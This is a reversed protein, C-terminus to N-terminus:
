WKIIGRVGSALSESVLEIANLTRRIFRKGNRMRNKIVQKKVNDIDLKNQLEQSITKQNTLQGEAVMQAVSQIAAQANSDNLNIQSQMLDGQFEAIVNTLHAEARKATASALANETNADTLANNKKEKVVLDNWQAKQLDMTQRVQDRLSEYYDRQADSLSKDALKKGIEVDLNVLELANRQRQVDANAASIAGDASVKKAQENKLQNDYFANLAAGVFSTDFNIPNVHADMRPAVNYSPASSNANASQLSSAPTAQGFMSAPNIGAAKMRDVVAQPANYANQKNWMEENFANQYDLMQKDHLLSERWTKYNQENTERQLDRNMRAIRMNTTNADQQALANMASGFFGFLGSAVDAAGVSCKQKPAFPSDFPSETLVVNLFRSM